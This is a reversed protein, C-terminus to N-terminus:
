SLVRNLFDGIDTIAADAEPLTGHHMHWGHSANEWTKLLVDVGDRRLAAALLHADDELIETASVHILCPPAGDFHGFAPSAEPHKPDTGGLYSAAADSMREAPLVVETKNNRQHSSGSITLDTWPSLGVVAVPLQRKEAILRHLLGFALGGGASEGMLVIQDYGRELLANYAAECDDLAAPFVHEPALRYDPLYVELGSAAAIAGALKRHTEASGFNYGGGHLYLAAVRSPPNVPRVVQGTLGPAFTVAGRRIGPTDRFFRAAHRELRQRSEVAHSVGALAPREVRKLYANLLTQRISM